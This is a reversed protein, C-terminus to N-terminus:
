AGTSRGGEGAVLALAHVGDDADKLVAGGLDLVAVGLVQTVAPPDGGDPGPEGGGGAVEQGHDLPVDLLLWARREGAIEGGELPERCCPAAVGAIQPSERAPTPPRM